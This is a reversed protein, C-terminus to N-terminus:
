GESSPVANIVSRLAQAAGMLGASEFPVVLKANPSAAVKGLADLQLIALLEPTPRASSIANYVTGIAQSRGEAELIQSQRLGEAELIASQKGAEARLIKAQKEGQAVNIDAQQQGE